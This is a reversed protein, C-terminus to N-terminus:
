ELQFIQHTQYILYCYNLISKYLLMDYTLNIIIIYMNIEELSVVILTPFYITIEVYYVNLIVSFHHFM